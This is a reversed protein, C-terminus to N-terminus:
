NGQAYKRETFTGNILHSIVGPYCKEFKIQKIIFLKINCMLFTFSLVNNDINKPIYIVFEM